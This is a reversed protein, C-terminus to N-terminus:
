NDQSRKARRAMFLAGGFIAFLGLTAPEPITEIQLDNVYADGWADWSPNVAISATTFARNVFQVRRSAEADFSFSVPDVTTIVGGVDVSAYALSNVEDIDLTLKYESGVAFGDVLAWKTFVGDVYLMAAGDSRMGFGIDNASNELDYPIGSGGLTVSQYWSVITAGSLNAMRDVMLGTYSITYHNGALQPALDENIVVGPAGISAAGDGNMLARLALVGTGTASTDETETLYTQTAAAIALSADSYTASVTSGVQRAAQNVQLNPEYGTGTAVDFTDTVIMVASVNLALAALTAVALLSTLKTNRKKKM